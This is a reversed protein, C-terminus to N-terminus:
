ASLHVGKNILIHELVQHKKIWLVSTVTTTQQQRRCNYHAIYNYTITSPNYNSHQGTNFYISQAKSKCSFTNRFAVCYSTKIIIKTFVKRM